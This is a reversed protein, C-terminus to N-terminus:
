KKPEAKPIYPDNTVLPKKTLAEFRAQKEDFFAVTQELEFTNLTRLSVPEKKDVLFIEGENIRQYMLVSIGIALLDLLLFVLCVIQWDKRADRGFQAGESEARARKFLGALSLKTPIHFM